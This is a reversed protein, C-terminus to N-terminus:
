GGSGSFCANADDDFKWQCEGNEGFPGCEALQFCAYWPLWECTTIVDHDACIQGSCGTKKCKNKNCYQEVFAQGDEPWDMIEGEDCGGPCEHSCEFETIEEKDDCFWHEHWDAFLVGDECWGMFGCQFYDVESCDSPYSPPNCPGACDEECNCINEGPGCEGNGCKTCIFGCPLAVGCDGNEDVPIQSLPTLGECCKLNWDEYDCQAKGEPICDEGICFVQMPYSEAIMCEGSDCKVCPDGAWCIPGDEDEFKYCSFGEPCPIMADCPQGACGEEDVLGDCDNDIGDCIEPEPV